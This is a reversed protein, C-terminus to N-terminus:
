TASNIVDNADTFTVAVGVKNPVRGNAAIGVGWIQIGGVNGGSNLNGPNAIDSDYGNERQDYHIRAVFGAVAISM